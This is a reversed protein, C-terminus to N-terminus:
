IRRRSLIDKIVPVVPEPVLHEWPHSNRLLSRVTTANLGKEELTCRWLVDTRLGMELFMQLKKEGWADYITLFFVAELPVYYGYRDPFNIPFPVISFRNAEVGAGKLAADVMRFREYYTFPNAEPRSRQPAAPDSATLQPEPNTIGVVLHRCRKMGALLYRLHDNHLVQFRGHIVGLEHM